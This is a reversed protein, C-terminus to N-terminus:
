SNSLPPIFGANNQECPIPNKLWKEELTRIQAPNYSAYIMADPHQFAYFLTTQFALEYSMLEGLTQTGVWDRENKRVGTKALEEDFLNRMEQNKPVICIAIAMTTSGCVFRDYAVGSDSLDASELLKSVSRPYWNTKLADMLNDLVKNMSDSCAKM